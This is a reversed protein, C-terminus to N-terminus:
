GTRMRRRAPTAELDAAECRGGSRSGRLTLILQHAGSFPIALASGGEQVTGRLAGRNPPGLAYIRVIYSRMPPSDRKLTLEM